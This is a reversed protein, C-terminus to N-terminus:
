DRPEVAVSRVSSIGGGSWSLTGSMDARGDARSNWIVLEYEFEIPTGEQSDALGGGLLIPMRDLNCGFYGMFDDPPIDLMDQLEKYEFAEDDADAYEFVVVNDDAEMMLLDDQAEMTVSFTNQADLPVVRNDGFLLARGITVDYAGALADLSPQADCLEGPEAAAPVAILAALIASAVSVRRVIPQDPM